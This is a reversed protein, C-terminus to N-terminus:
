GLEDPGKLAFFPLRTVAQGTIRLRVAGAQNEPGEEPGVGRTHPPSATRGGLRQNREILNFRVKRSPRAKQRNFM